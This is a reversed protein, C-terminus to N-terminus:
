QINTRHRSLVKPNTVFHRSVIYLPAISCSSLKLEYPPHANRTILSEPRANTSQALYGTNLFIGSSCVIDLDVRRTILRTPIRRSNSANLMPLILVASAALGGLVGVGVAPGVGVGGGM